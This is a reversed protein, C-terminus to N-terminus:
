ETRLSKVPNAIAAKIAQFSITLLAIFVALFATLAFVQWSITIRYSFNQLWKNMAYWAIPSAIIVAVLVLKLFDKSLLAIVNSVSAGLVKRIGIEKTRREATYAALGFLGLCSIFIAVAAFVNFLQGIRQDSFYLDNVADDLFHYEFPYGPSYKKWVKEAAAIAKTADRGTTKSYVTYNGPYGYYFLGPKIKEKLSSTHFDNVVGIITGQLDLIAFKKGIPDKIGSQKIATENLIFHASDARSGSFNRGAVIRMGLLPILDKDAGNVDMFFTSNPPKGEWDNWATEQQANVISGFSSAVGLIGTQKLLENRAAEYHDRMEDRMTFSFVYEKDYGLNKERIYKLQKGVVITAVILGVSFVFQFVVLAKRLWAAGLGM